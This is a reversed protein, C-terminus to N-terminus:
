KEVGHRLDSGIVTKSARAKPNATRAATCRLPVGRLIRIKVSEMPASRAVVFPRLLRGPM